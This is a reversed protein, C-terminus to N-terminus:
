AQANPQKAGGVRRSPKNSYTMKLVPFSAKGYDALATDIKTLVSDRETNNDYRNSSLFLV